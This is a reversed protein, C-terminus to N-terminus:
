DLHIDMERLVARLKKFSRVRAPGISGVPCGLKKALEQYSPPSDSLFAEMIQRSHPDLRNIAQRVTMQTELRRLESDRPDQYDAIEELLQGNRRGHEIHHLTARHTIRIMWSSLMTHDRLTQLRRFVIMFVNQMVDEADVASLGYQRPIAYVLRQYREVLENWAMDNGQLCSQILTPDSKYREKSSLKKTLDHVGAKTRDNRRIGPADVATLNRITTATLNAMAGGLSFM